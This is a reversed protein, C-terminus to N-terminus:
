FSDEVQLLLVLLVISPLVFLITSPVLETCLLVQSFFSAISFLELKCFRALSINRWYCFSQIFALPLAYDFSPEWYLVAGIHRGAEM